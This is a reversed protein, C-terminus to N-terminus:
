PLACAENDAVGGGRGTGPEMIGEHEIVAGAIEALFPLRRGCRKEDDEIQPM